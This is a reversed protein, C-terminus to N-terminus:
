MRCTKSRTGQVPTSSHAVLSGAEAVAPRNRSLEAYARSHCVAAALPASTCAGMKGRGAVVVVAVGDVVRKVTVQSPM